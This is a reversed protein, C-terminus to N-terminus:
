PAQIKIGYSASLNTSTGTTTIAILKFYGYGGTDFSRTQTNTTSAANVANTAYVLDAANTNYNIGDVGPALTYINTAGVASTGFMTTSFALYRQKVAGITPASALPYNTTGATLVTPIGSISQAFYTQAHAGVTVLGVLAILLFKKM